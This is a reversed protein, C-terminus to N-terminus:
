ASAHKLEVFENLAAVADELDTFIRVGKPPRKVINVGAGGAWIQIHGPLLQRLRLLSPRIYRAPYAFSFSLAVIDAKLSIAAMKMDNLPMHPGAIISKVGHDALVAEAMLLGLAHLEGPPTAFLITPFGPKQKSSLIEAHLGRQVLGTFLHEHYIEIEKKAWADGVAQILPALTNLVFKTLTENAREMALLAQLGGLDVKQLREILQETSASWCRSPTEDAFARGLRDLELPSKGVVQAPRYGAELLRKILLIRDITKRSYGVSGKHGVELEPFGYRGRWKRLLDNSFGTECEMDGPPVLFDSQM